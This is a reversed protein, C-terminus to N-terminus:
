DYGVNGSLLLDYQGIPIDYYLKIFYGYWDNFLFNENDEVYDKVKETLLEVDGSNRLFDIKREFNIKYDNIFYCGQIFFNYIFCCLYILLFIFLEEQKFKKM